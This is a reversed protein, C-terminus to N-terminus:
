MTEWPWPSRVWSGTSFDCQGFNMLPGYASAYADLLAQLKDSYCNFDAKAAADDPHTDLYLNLDVCTFRAECIKKLLAVRDQDM